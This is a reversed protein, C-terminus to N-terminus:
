KHFYYTKVITNSGSITTNVLVYQQTTTNYTYSYDYPNGVMTITVFGSGYTIPYVYTTGINETVTTSGFLWTYTPTNTTSITGGNTQQTWKTLNWLGILSPPNTTVYVTDHIYITDGNHIITDNVFVTDHVTVTKVIPDPTIVEKKCSFLLLSFIAALFLITKKM